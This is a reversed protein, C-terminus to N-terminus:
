VLQAEHGYVIVTMYGQRVQSSARSASAEFREARLEDCGYAPKVGESAVVVRCSRVTGAGDIALAMVQGGLLTDGIELRGPDPRQGPTFRREITIKTYMGASGSASSKAAKPASDSNCIRAGSGASSEYKCSQEAGDGDITYTVKEWWPSTTTFTPSAAAAAAAAALIALSLM